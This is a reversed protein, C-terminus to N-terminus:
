LMILEVEIKEGDVSPLYVVYNATDLIAGADIDWGMKTLVTGDPYRAKIDYGGGIEAFYKDLLSLNGLSGKKKSELIIVDAVDMNKFYSVGELKELGESDIPSNLFNILIAEKGLIGDIKKNAERVEDQGTYFSLIVVGIIIIPISVVFDAFFDEAHGRKFKMM